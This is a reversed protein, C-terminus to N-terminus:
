GRPDFRILPMRRPAATAAYGVFGPYRATFRAFAADWGADDTIEVARVAVTGRPTEIAADPHAVLNFYWAPNTPAGALSACVLWSGDEELAAAPSIREEGSRAGISHILVLGDGFGQVEGHNARFQAIVRENYDSM